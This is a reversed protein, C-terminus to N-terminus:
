APGARRVPVPVAIPEPRPRPGAPADRQLARLAAAISPRRAAGDRWVAHVHRTLAPRLAVLRVGAPVSDRGLRPVIGVGHGAAVLALQTPHEAVTHVIDPEVGRARLTAVLWEHCTSGRRWSIWEETALEDLDVIDRGALHHGVPVALDVVDDFLDTRALSAPLVLPASDWSQAIAIDVTGRAVAPVSEAPDQESVRVLLEPHDQGLSGIVRPLLGRAATAFAAISLVGHVAGRHHELDARAEEVAALIRRAHEALRHAVETLRVGRGERELLTQGVERELKGLQQSAASPTINLAEAAMSISGYASVAHLARLRELNM